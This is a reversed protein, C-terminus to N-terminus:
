QLEERLSELAPAYGAEGFWDAMAKEVGSVTITAGTIADVAFRADGSSPNSDVHFRYRGKGDYLKKGRWQGLWEPDEIRDGIGPTEGHDFIVVGSVTNLDSELAVFGHIRSWMGPGYFPLVLRELRDEDWWLFLPMFRPRERLEATGRVRYDYASPDLEATLAGTEIDVARVEFALFANVVEDDDLAAVGAEQGAAELIVRAYDVSARAFQIPRLWHVASSVILACVIAVVAAFILTKFPSETRPQVM